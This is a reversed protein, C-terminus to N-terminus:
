LSSLSCLSLLSLSLSLSSSFFIASASEEGSENGKFNIESFVASCQHIAFTFHPHQLHSLDFISLFAALASYLFPFYLWSSSPLVTFIGGAFAMDLSAFSKDQYTVKHFSKMMWDVLKFEDCRADRLLPLSSSLALLLFLISRRFQWKSSEDIKRTLIVSTVSSNVSAFSYCLLSHCLQFSASSPADQRAQHLMSWGWSMIVREREREGRRGRCWRM